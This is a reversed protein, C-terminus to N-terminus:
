LIMVLSEKVALNEPGELDEQNVRIDKTVRIEGKAMKYANRSSITEEKERKVLNEQNELNVLNEMKVQHAKTEQIDLKEKTM